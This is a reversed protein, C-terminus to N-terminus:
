SSGDSADEELDEPDLQEFTSDQFKRRGEQQFCPCFLKYLMPMAGKRGKRRSSL